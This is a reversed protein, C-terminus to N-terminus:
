NTMSYRYKNNINFIKNMNICIKSIILSRSSLKLFANDYLTIVIM